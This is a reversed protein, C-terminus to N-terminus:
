KRRDDQLSGPLFGLESFEIDSTFLLDKIGYRLPKTMMYPNYLEKLGPEFSGSGSKLVETEIFLKLIGIEYMEQLKVKIANFETGIVGPGFKSQRQWVKANANENANENETVILDDDEYWKKKVPQQLKPQSQSQSQTPLQRQLQPPSQPPSKSQSM